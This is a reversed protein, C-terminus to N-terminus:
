HIIEATVSTTGSFGVTIMKNSGVFAATLKWRRRAGAAVPAAAQSGVNGAPTKGPDTFTVNISSGGGNFVELIKGVHARHIQETAGVSGPGALTGLGGAPEAATVPIAM